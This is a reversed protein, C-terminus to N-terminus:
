AETGTGAAETPDGEVNQEAAAGPKPEDDKFATELAKNLVVFLKGPKIHEDLLKEVEDQTLIKEGCRISDHKLLVFAAAIQNDLSFFSEDMTKMDVGALASYEKLAKITFRLERPRDLQLLIVDNNDPTKSM